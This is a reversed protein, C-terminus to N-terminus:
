LTFHRFGYRVLGLQKRCRVYFEWYMWRMCAMDEDDPTIGAYKSLVFLATMHDFTGAAQAGVYPNLRSRYM